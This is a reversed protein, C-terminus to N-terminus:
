IRCEPHNIGRGASVPDRGEVPAPGVSHIRTRGALGGAQAQEAGSVAFEIFEISACEPAPAPAVDQFISPAVKTGARWLQEEVYRLSRMADMATLRVPSARLDDNPVDLAFPGDYGTELVRAVFSRVDLVGQGPFCRLRRSARSVGVGTSRVDTLLAMFISGRPFHAIDDLKSDSVLLELNSVVLGLNSRDALRVMSAARRFAPFDPSADSVDIAVAYGRSQALDALVALQSATEAHREQDAQERTLSVHMLSAGMTQMVEFKRQIRERVLTRHQGDDSGFIAHARFMSVRIGLERLLEALKAPSLEDVLLESDTLTVLRFGAASIAYLKEKVTGGLSTAAISQQM